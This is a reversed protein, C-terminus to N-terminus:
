RHCHLLLSHSELISTPIQFLVIHIELRGLRILIPPTSIGGNKFEGSIKALVPSLIAVSLTALAVLMKKKAVLFQLKTVM